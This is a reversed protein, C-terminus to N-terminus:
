REGAEIFVEEIRKEMGGGDTYPKTESERLRQGLHTLLPPIPAADDIDTDDM